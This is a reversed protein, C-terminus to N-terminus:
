IHANEVSALASVPLKQEASCSHRSSLDDPFRRRSAALSVERRRNACSRGVCAPVSPRPRAAEEVFVREERQIWGNM